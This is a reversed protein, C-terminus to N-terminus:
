RGRLAERVVADVHTRPEVAEIRARVGEVRADGACRVVVPQQQFGQHTAGTEDVVGALPPVVRQATGREGAPVEVKRYLAVSQRTPSGPPRLLGPRPARHGVSRAM